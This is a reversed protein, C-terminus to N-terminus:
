AEDTISAAIDNVTQEITNFEVPVEDTKTGEETKTDAEAVQETEASEVQESAIETESGEEGKEIASEAKESSTEVADTEVSEEENQRV